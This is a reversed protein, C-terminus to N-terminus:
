IGTLKNAREDNAVQKQQTRGIHLTFLIYFENTRSAQFHTPLSGYFHGRNYQCDSSPVPFFSRSISLPLFIKLNKGCPTTGPQAVGGVM